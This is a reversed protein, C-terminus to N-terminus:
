RSYGKQQRGKIENVLDKWDTGLQDNGDLELTHLAKCSELTSKVPGVLENNQMRLTTLKSLSGM